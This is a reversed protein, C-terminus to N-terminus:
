QCLELFLDPTIGRKSLKELFVKHYRSTRRSIVSQGVGVLKSLEKQPKKQLYWIVYCRESPNMEQLCEKVQQMLYNMHAEKDTKDSSPILTGMEVLGGDHGKIEKNLRDSKVYNCSGKKQGQAKRIIDIFESNTHITLHVIFPCTGNYSIISKYLCFMAVSYIDDNDYEVINWKRVTKALFPQYQPLIEEFSIEGKQVKSIIKFDEHLVNTNNTM